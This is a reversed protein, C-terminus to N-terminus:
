KTGDPSIALDQPWSQAATNTPPFSQPPPTGGPAPVEIVGARTAKGSRKNLKFVHIVDGEQGPVDDAVDNSSKGGEPTGSVYATKGDPSMAIGGSLGPMPITQVVKGAKKRGQKRVRVIRVDNAGRGASLTWAFRGDVTLAGGTPLNGLETLKGVPDLLRGNPQIRNDPGIVGPPTKAAIVVGAIVAILALAGALVAIPVGRTRM